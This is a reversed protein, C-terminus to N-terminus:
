KIMEAMCGSRVIQESGNPKGIEMCETFEQEFRKNVIDEFEEISALEYDGRRCSMHNVAYFVSNALIDKAAKLEVASVPVVTRLEGKSLAKVGARFNEDNACARQDSTTLDGWTDGDHLRCFEDLSNIGRGQGDGYGVGCFRGYRFGKLAGIPAIYCEKSTKNNDLCRTRENATFLRDRVAKTYFKDFANVSEYNRLCKQVSRSSAFTQMEFGAPCEYCYGLDAYQNGPRKSCQANPRKADFVAKSKPGSWPPIRLADNKACATESRVGAGTRHPHSSPCKWCAGDLPQKNYGDRCVQKGRSYPQSYIRLPHKPKIIKPGYTGGLRPNPFYLLKARVGDIQTEKELWELDFSADIVPMQIKRPPPSTDFKTREEVPPPAPPENTCSGLLLCSAAAIWVSLRGYPISFNRLTM